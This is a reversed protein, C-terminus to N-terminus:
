LSYESSISFVLSFSWFSKLLSCCTTSPIRRWVSSLICLSSCSIWFSFSSLLSSQFLCSLSISLLYLATLCPNESSVLFLIEFFFFTRLAIASPFALIMCHSSSSRLSLCFCLSVSFFSISFATLLMSWLNKTFKLYNNLLIELFICSKLKIFM